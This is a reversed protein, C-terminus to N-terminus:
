HTACCPFDRQAQTSLTSRRMPTELSSENGQSAPPAPGCTPPIPTCPHIMYSNDHALKRPPLPQNQPANVLFPLNPGSELFGPINPWITKKEIRFSTM